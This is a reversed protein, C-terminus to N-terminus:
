PINQCQEVHSKKKKIHFTLYDTRKLKKIGNIGNVYMRVREPMKIVLIFRIPYYFENENIWGVKM